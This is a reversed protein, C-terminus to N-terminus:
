DRAWITRYAILSTGGAITSEGVDIRHVPRFLYRMESLEPYWNPLLVLYDPQAKELYRLVGRDAPEGPQLYDLVEPTALGIIDLIRRQSFYAIAGIDNTAVVADAPTNAALWRGMAVHMANIDTVNEGFSRGQRAGFVLLNGLVLVWVLRALVRGWRRQQPFTWEPRLLAWAEQLGVLGVM